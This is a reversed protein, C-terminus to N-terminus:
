MAHRARLSHTVAHVLAPCTRTEPPHGTSSGHAVARQLPRSRGSRSCVGWPRRGGGAGGGCACVELQLLAHGGDAADGVAAPVPLCPPDHPGAAHGPRDAAGGMGLPPRRHLGGRGSRVRLPCPRLGPRTRVHRISPPSAHAPGPSSPPTTHTPPPPTYWFIFKDKRLHRNETESVPSDKLLPFHPEYRWCFRVNM